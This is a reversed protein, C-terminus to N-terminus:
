PYKKEGAKIAIDLVNEKPVLPCSFHHNYLCFPNYAYNFDIIGAETFMPVELYRGGEYTSDGNTKDRFMVFYRNADDADTYAPLTFEKQLLTFRLKGHYTMKRKEGKSDVIERSKRAYSELMVRARFRTDAPYYNLGTFKLFDDAFPSEKQQAFANNKETRFLQLQQKWLSADFNTENEDNTAPTYTCACICCIVVFLKHIQFM